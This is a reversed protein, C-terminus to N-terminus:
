DYDCDPSGWEKGVPGGLASQLKRHKCWAIAVEDMATDPVSVFLQESGATVKQIAFQEPKRMSIMAHSDFDSFVNHEQYLYTETDAHYTLVKADQELKIATKALEKQNIFHQAVGVLCEPDFSAAVADAVSREKICSADSIDPGWIGNVMDFYANGSVDTLGHDRCTIVWRAPNNQKAHASKIFDLLDDDKPSEHLTHEGTDHSDDSDKREPNASPLDKLAARMHMLRKAKGEDTKNGPMASVAANLWNHVEACVRDNESPEIVETDSYGLAEQVQDEVPLKSDTIVLGIIPLSVGRQIEGMRELVWKRADDDNQFRPVENWYFRDPIQISVGNKLYCAIQASEEPLYARDSQLLELADRFTEVPQPFHDRMDFARFCLIEPHPNQKYM